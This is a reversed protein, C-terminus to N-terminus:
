KKHIERSLLIYGLSQEVLTVKRRAENIVTAGPSLLCSEQNVKDCNDVVSLYQAGLLASDQANSICTQKVSLSFWAMPVTVTMLM